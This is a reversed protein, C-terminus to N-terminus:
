TKSYSEETKYTFPSPDNKRVLKMIREKGGKKYTTFSPLHGEISDFNIKYKNPGPIHWKEYRVADIVSIKEEGSFDFINILAM